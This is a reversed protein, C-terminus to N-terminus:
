GCPPPFAKEECAKRPLFKEKTFNAISRLCKAHLVMELDMLISYFRLLCLRLFATPFLLSRTGAALGTLFCGTNTGPLSLLAPLLSPPGRLHPSPAQPSSWRRGSSTQCKSTFSPPAPGAKEGSSAKNEGGLSDASWFGLNGVHTNERPNTFIKKCTHFSSMCGGVEGPGTFRLRFYNHTGRPKLM